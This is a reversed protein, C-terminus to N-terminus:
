AINQAKRRIYLEHLISFINSTCWYLAAAANVKIGFVFILVPFVYRSQLSLTRAFEGEMTKEAESNAPAPPKALYAQFFTTLGALAALLISPQTVDLLGLFMTNITEPVKVFTYAVDAASAFGDRAVWYLGLLLPIQVILLGLSSFPNIGHARYLEIIQRGQEEPNDKHKAKLEALRPEIDRMKRQTTMASHFLPALILRVLVTLLVIAIGVDSGPILSDILILGNYLPYYVLTNFISSIM